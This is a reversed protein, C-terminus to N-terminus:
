FYWNSIDSAPSKEKEKGKEKVDGVDPVEVVMATTDHPVVWLNAELDESDVWPNGEMLYLDSQDLVSYDPMPVVLGEVEGVDEKDHELPPLPGGVLMTDLCFKGTVLM